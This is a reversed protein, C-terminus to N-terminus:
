LQPVQITSRPGPEQEMTVGSTNYPSTADGVTTARAGNSPSLSQGAQSQASGASMGLQPNTSGPGASSGPQPNPTRKWTINGEKQLLGNFKNIQRERVKLYRFERVKDMLEQCQQMPTM